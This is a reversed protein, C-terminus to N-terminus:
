LAHGVRLRGGSPWGPPEMPPDSASPSRPPPRDPPQQDSGGRARSSGILDLFKDIQPGSILNMIVLVVLVVEVRVDEPHTAYWIIIGLGTLRFLSRWLRAEM